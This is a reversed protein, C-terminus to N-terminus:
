HYLVELANEVVSRDADARHAHLAPDLGRVRGQLLHEADLALPAV